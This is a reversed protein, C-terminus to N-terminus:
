VNGSIIEIKLTTFNSKFSNKLVNEKSDIAMEMANKRVYKSDLEAVVAKM